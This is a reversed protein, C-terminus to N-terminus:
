DDQGVLLLSHFIPTLRFVIGRGLQAGDNKQLFLNIERDLVVLFNRGDFKQGGVAIFRKAQYKGIPILVFNPLKLFRTRMITLMGKTYLKKTFQNVDLEPPSKLIRFWQLQNLAIQSEEFAYPTHPSFKIEFWLLIKNLLEDNNEEV